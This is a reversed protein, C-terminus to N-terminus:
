HQVISSNGFVGQFTFVGEGTMGRLHMWDPLMSLRQAGAWLKAKWTANKLRSEQTHTQLLTCRIHTRSLPSWAATKHCQDVKFHCSFYTNRWKHCSCLQIHHQLVAWPTWGPYPFMFQKKERTTYWTSLKEALDRYVCVLSSLYLMWICKLHWNQKFFLPIKSEWLCKSM